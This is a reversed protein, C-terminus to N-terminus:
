ARAARTTSREYIRRIRMLARADGDAMTLKEHSSHWFTKVLGFISRWRWRHREALTLQISQRLTKSAWVTSACLDQIVSIALYPGLDGDGEM